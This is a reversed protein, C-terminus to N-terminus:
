SNESEKDILDQELYSIIESPKLTRFKVRQKVENISEYEVMDLLEKVDEIHVWERLKNKM